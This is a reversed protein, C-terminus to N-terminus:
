RENFTNHNTHSQTRISCLWCCMRGFRYNQRVLTEFYNKMPIGAKVPTQSGPNAEEM